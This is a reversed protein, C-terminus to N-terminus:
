GPDCSSLQLHVAYQAFRTRGRRETEPSTSSRGLSGSDTRRREPDSRHHVERFTRSEDPDDADKVGEDTRLSKAAEAHSERKSVTRSGVAVVNTVGIPRVSKRARRGAPPRRRPGALPAEIECSTMTVTLPQIGKLHLQM